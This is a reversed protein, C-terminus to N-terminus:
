NKHLILALRLALRRNAPKRPRIHREPPLQSVHVRRLGHYKGSVRRRGLPIGRGSYCTSLVIERKRERVLKVDHRAYRGTFVIPADKKKREQEDRFKNPSTIHTLRGNFFMNRVRSPVGWFVLEEVKFSQYVHM